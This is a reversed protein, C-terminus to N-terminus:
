KELKELGEWLWWGASLLFIITKVTSLDLKAAIFMLLAGIAVMWRGVWKSPKDTKTQKVTLSAQYNAYTPTTPKVLTKPEEKRPKDAKGTVKLVNM